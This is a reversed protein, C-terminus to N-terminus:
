GDTVSPVVIVSAVQQLVPAVQSRLVDLSLEAPNGALNIGGVPSSQESARLLVAVSNLGSNLANINFAVGTQRIEALEEILMDIDIDETKDSLLSRVESDELESLLAKGISTTWAPLRDGPEIRYSLAREAVAREVYIIEIGDRIAFSAAGRFQESIAGLRDRVEDLWAWQDQAAYGLSRIRPGLSYMKTSRDHHLYGHRTLTACYRFLTAREISLERALDTLRLPKGVRELTELLRLGRVLSRVEYRASSYSDTPKPKTV